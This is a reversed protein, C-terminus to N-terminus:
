TDRTAAVDPDDAEDPPAAAVRYSENAWNGLDRQRCAESCFPRWPNTLEYRVRQRCAPCPVLPAERKLGADEAMPLAFPTQGELAFHWSSAPTKAPHGCGVM